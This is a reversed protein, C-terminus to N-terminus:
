HHSPTHPYTSIFVIFHPVNKSVVLRTILNSVQFLQPRCSFFCPCFLWGRLPSRNRREPTKTTILPFYFLWTPFFRLHPSSIRRDSIILKFVLGLFSSANFQREKGHDAHSGARRFFDEEEGELSSKFRRHYVPQSVSTRTLLDWIVEVKM